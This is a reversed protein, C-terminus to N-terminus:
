LRVMHREGDPTVAIFSNDHITLASAIVPFTQEFVVVQNPNDLPHMYLQDIEPKGEKPLGRTYYSMNDKIWFSSGTMMNVLHKLEDGDDRYLVSHERATGNNFTIILYTKGDIVKQSSIITDAIGSNAIIEGSSASVPKEGEDEIRILGGLSSWRVQYRTDYQAWPFINFTRYFEDWAYSGFCKVYDEAPVYIVKEKKVPVASFERYKDNLVVRKEGITLKM